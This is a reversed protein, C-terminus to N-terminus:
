PTPAGNAARPKQLQPQLRGDSPGTRFPRPNECVRLSGTLTKCEGGAASCASCRCSTRHEDVLYVGYSAKRFPEKHHVRAMVTPVTGTESAGRRQDSQVMGGSASASGQRRGGGSGGEQRGGTAAGAVPVSHVGSQFRGFGHFKRFNEFQAEGWLFYSVDGRVIFRRFSLVGGEAAECEGRMRRKRV